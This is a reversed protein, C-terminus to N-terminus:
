NKINKLIKHKKNKYDNLHLRDNKSVFYSNIILDNFMIITSLSTM